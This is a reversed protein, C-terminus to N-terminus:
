RSETLDEDDSYIDEDEEEGDVMDEDDEVINGEKDIAIGSYHAESMAQYMTERIREEFAPLNLVKGMKQATTAADEIYELIENLLDVLRKSVKEMKEKSLPVYRTNYGAMKVIREAYAAKEQVEMLDDSHIMYFDDVSNPMQDLGVFPHWVAQGNSQIREVCFLYEEATSETEDNIMQIMEAMMSSASYAKMNALDGMIKAAIALMENKKM